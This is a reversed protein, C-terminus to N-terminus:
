FKSQCGLGILAGGAQDAACGKCFSCEVGGWLFFLSLSRYTLLCTDREGDVSVLRVTEATIAENLRQEVDKAAVKAQKQEKNALGVKWSPVPRTYIEGLVPSSELGQFDEELEPAPVKEQDPRPINRSRLVQGFSVWSGSREAQKAQETSQRSASDM